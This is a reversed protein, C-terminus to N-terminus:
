GERCTSLENGKASLAWHPESLGRWRAPDWLDMRGTVFAVDAATCGNSSARVSLQHMEGKIDVTDTIDAIDNPTEIEAIKFCLTVIEYKQALHRRLPGRELSFRLRLLCYFSHFTNCVSTATSPIVDLVKTSLTSTSYIVVFDRSSPDATVKCSSFNPNKWWFESKKLHSIM